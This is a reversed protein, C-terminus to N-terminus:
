VNMSTQKVTKELIVPLVPANTAVLLTKVLEEMKVLNRLKANTSIMEVTNEKIDPRANEAIREM